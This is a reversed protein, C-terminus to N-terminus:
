PRLQPARRLNETRTQWGRAARSPLAEPSSQRQFLLERALSFTALTFIVFDISTVSFWHSESMDALFARFILALYLAGRAKELRMLNLGQRLYVIFYALLCAGGVYGLDNIVDLYGNHGETPYFFLQNVMDYSPSSQVPGIWYAEYGTGLLPHQRIHLKLLYWINTRGSFTLDKGSFMSIPTLIVSLGPLINLVALAYLLVAAAFFGVMYPMLRRMSGSPRLLLIVFFSAFVTSMLSTSSRCMILCLCALAMNAIATVRGTEGTLLGHLWLIFACGALSGLVNKGTTIGHWANILEMVQDHHIALEPDWYCFIASAALLLFLLWRLTNEFRRPQWGASAFAVSVSVIIYLRIIRRLTIAPEISWLLSLSALVVFYLFPRNVAALLGRVQRWNKIVLYTSGVLLVMWITLTTSDVETPMERAQYDFGQPVTMVTFLLLVLAAPLLSASKRSRPLAAGLTGAPRRALQAKRIRNM